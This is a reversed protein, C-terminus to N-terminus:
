LLQDADLNVCAKQLLQGLLEAFFNSFQFFFYILKCALLEVDIRWFLETFDKKILELQRM